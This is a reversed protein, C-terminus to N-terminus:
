PFSQPQELPAGSDLKIPTPLNKLFEHLAQVVERPKTQLVLHSTDFTVCRANPKMSFFQQMAETSSLKDQNGILCLLPTQLDALTPTLDADFMMRVRHALVEPKVSHIARKISELLAPECEGGTVLQKVASDPTAREFWKEKTFFSTWSAAPANIKSFFSSCLVLGEINEHQEAAFKLALPGGFSEALLVYPEGWPMVERIHPFLQEYYLVQDQPYTVVVPVFEEPLASLLPAFLSGTGDLGPLLVLHRRTVKMKM